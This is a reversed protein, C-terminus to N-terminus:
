ENSVKTGDNSSSTTNTTMSSTDVLSLDAMLLIHDSPDVISPLRDYKPIELLSKPQFHNTAWIQDINGQFWGTKTTYLPEGNPLHSYVSSWQFPHTYTTLPDNDLIHTADAMFKYNFDQPGSNFDGSVVLPTSARDLKHSTLFNDLILSLIHMQQVQIRRNLLPEPAGWYLHVSAVLIPRNLINDHLLAFCHRNHHESHLIYKLVHAAEPTASLRALQAATFFPSKELRPYEVLHEAILTLRSKRYFLLCQEPQHDEKRLLPTHAYGRSEFVERLRTFSVEVEQMAVVDPDHALLYEPVIYKRYPLHVSYPPCWHYRHPQTFCDAMMNYSQVRLSRTDGAHAEFDYHVRPKHTIVTGKFSYASHRLHLTKSSLVVELRIVSGVHQALPIFVLRSEDIKHHKHSGFVKSLISPHKEKETPQPLPNIEVDNVFWRCSEIDHADVKVHQPSGKEYKPPIVQALYMPVGMVPTVPYLSFM